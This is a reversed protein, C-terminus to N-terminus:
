EDCNILFSTYSFGLGVDLIKFSKNDFYDIKYLCSENEFNSGLQHDSGNGFGYVNNETKIINHFYSSYINVVKEGFIDLKKLGRLEKTLNGFTYLEGKETLCLNNFYGSAVDVIKDKLKFEVPVFSQKKNPDGLQGEYGKGFLSLTGDINLFCTHSSGLTFKKINKLNISKIEKPITENFLNGNCLEGFNNVGYSYLKEQNTETITTFLIHNNGKEIRNIKENENKKMELLEYSDILAGNGL